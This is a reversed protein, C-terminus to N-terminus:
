ELPIRGKSEALWAGFSKLAPNLAQSAAIGRAGCFADAFDRNFQFMNGVDEAGPFGFGRYAEPAVEHYRVEQGLAKSLAAAM